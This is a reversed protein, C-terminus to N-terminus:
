GATAAKAEAWLIRWEERSLEDLPRDAAAAMAEFRARFRRAAGRLAAEPDLGHRRALGVASLLLDGAEKRRSEDDGAALFEELEARVRRAADADQPWDFGSKAARSLLQDAYGLAPQAAPVGEFAGRSPKESAKLRQWNAVVQEASRVEVDGFVHPHRRVLKDTIGKAVDDITFASADEAIQAHFVVQLLLDGLEECVAEVDGTDIAELLEYVEEVAFRALSAHTQERDWPCGGPGRLRATVRVLDLLASGKPALLFYVVEVEVGATAARMGLARTFAEDDGAGFLYAVDGAARARDVIHEIQRKRQPTLGSLLEPRSLAATDGAPEPLVEYRLDALEMYQIFPHGPSGVLVLDSSMLASWGHLPLLGPLADATDVLILRGV